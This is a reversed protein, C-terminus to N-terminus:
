HQQQVVPTGGDCAVLGTGHGGVGTGSGVTPVLSLGQCAETGHPSPQLRVLADQREAQTTPLQEEVHADLGQPPHSSM